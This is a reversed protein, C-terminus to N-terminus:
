DEDYLFDKIAKFKDYNEIKGSIRGNITKKNKQGPPPIEHELEDSQEKSDSIEYIMDLM